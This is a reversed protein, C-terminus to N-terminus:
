IRYERQLYLRLAVANNHEEDRAAFLLTVRRRKAKSVLATTTEANKSLERFYRVKFQRWKKPDHDFWKRLERSPAIEKLWLDIEAVEKKVGRPWIGDVLVRYGDGKTPPEYVRKLSIAM